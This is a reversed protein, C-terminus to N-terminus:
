GKVTAAGGSPAPMANMSEVEKRAAHKADLRRLWAKDVYQCGVEEAANNIVDQIVDAKGWIASLARAIDEIHLHGEPTELRALALKALSAIESLGDQAQCDMFEVANRLQATTPNAM